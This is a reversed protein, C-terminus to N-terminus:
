KQINDDRAIVDLWIIERFYYHKYSTEGIPRVSVLPREVRGDSSRKLNGFEIVEVTHIEDHCQIRHIEGVRIGAFVKKRSRM